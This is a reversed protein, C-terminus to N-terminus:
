ALYLKFRMFLQLRFRSGLETGIGIFISIVVYDVIILKTDVTLFTKKRLSTTNSMIVCDGKEEKYQKGRFV